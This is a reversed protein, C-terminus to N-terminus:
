QRGRRRIPSAPSQQGLSSASWTGTNSCVPDPNLWDGLVIWRLWTGQASSYSEDFQGAYIDEVGGKSVRIEFARGTIPWGPPNTLEVRGTQSIGPCVVEAEIAFRTLASLDATVDFDVPRGQDTLGAFRTSVPASTATPTATRPVTPTRTPTEPPPSTSTSTATRSPVTTHTQTPTHASQRLILALHAPSAMPSPDAAVYRAYKLKDSSKYSIHPHGDADLALSTYEGDDGGWNVEEIHWGTADRYAYNLSPHVIKYAYKLNNLSYRPWSGYYSIHPHGAADVALSSYAGREGHDVIEIHWGTADQYAYKLNEDSPDYYSIHPHGAADLALSTTRVGGVDDVIEIHWGTADQYAYKLYYESGIYYEYYSIHPYGATDLALSSRLGPRYGEDDVIETRWGTPGPCAYKLSERGWERDCYSIHPHGGEDLALSTYRGVDGWWDVREIHWGTADQYAYKLDKRTYNYYSIHPYGSADLALSTYEGVDGESDVTETHWGTADRYAYKLDGNTHDHYSIHPHGAADVALSTYKGVDGENDVTEIHWGSAPATPSPGVTPTRSPGATPTRSPTRTPTRSPGTTPTRTATPSWGLTATRTPTRTATRSRTPTRTRTPTDTPPSQCPGIRLRIGVDASEAAGLDVWTGNQGDLSIFSRNPASPSLNDVPLAAWHDANTFRVVINVDDGTSVPLPPNITVSHYGVYDFSLNERQWLLGSPAQGDFTDYIYVDVDTTVDATWFEVRSACGNQQPTLRVLGCAHHHEHWGYFGQIGAEDHHLLTGNPDADQWDKIVAANSGIGASGYAITFYGGESGYGCTGGWDTGWSNKVIWAGSGGAHSLTDDWGVLLVAHSLKQVSPHYLTYSGDYDSFEQKWAYEAGADMAVYLPGYSRLWSKLVGVPAPDAALFWMDTVTKIYPCGTHCPQDDPNWPDCSELVAGSSSYLNTVMWINGGDCGGHEDTELEEYTCEAVHNESFDYLGQGRILLQSEFSGLAAFAYCAGCPNQDQVRTVKGQERWDWRDTLPATRPAPRWRGNLHSLDFKPPVYGFAHRRPTPKAAPTLLASQRGQDQPSIPVEAVDPVSLDGSPWETSAHFEAESPTHRLPLRPLDDPGLSQVQGTPQVLIIAVFLLLSMWRFSSQCLRRKM